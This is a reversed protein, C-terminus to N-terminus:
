RIQQDTHRCQFEAIAYPRGVNAVELHDRAECDHLELRLIAERDFLFNEILQVPPLLPFITSYNVSATSSLSTLDSSTPGCRSV